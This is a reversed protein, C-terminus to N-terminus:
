LTMQLQINERSSPSVKKLLPPSLSSSTTAASRAKRIGLPSMPPSKVTNRSAQVAALTNLAKTAERALPGGARERDKLARLVNVQTAELTALTRAVQLRVYECSDLGLMELLIRIIKDSKMGLVGASVVAHARCDDDESELQKEVRDVIWDKMGLSTLTSAVESRVEKSPDDYLRRGLIEFVRDMEEENQFCEPGLCVLLKAAAARYRWVTSNQLQHVIIDVVDQETAHFQRVLIELSRATVHTDNSSLSGMLKQRAVEDPICLRGLCVACDYGLDDDAPSACLMKLTGILEQVIPLTKNVLHTNRANIMTTVVDSKAEHTGNKLYKVLVGVALASWYGLSIVSKASEYRVRSDSDYELRKTLASIIPKECCDLVGFNRATDIREEVKESELKSLMVMIRQWKPGKKDLRKVGSKCKAGILSALHVAGLNLKASGLPSHKRPPSEFTMPKSVQKVQSSARSKNHNKYMILNTEKAVNMQNVLRITPEMQEPPTDNWDSSIRPYKKETNTRTLPLVEPAPIPKPYYKLHVHPTTTRSEVPPLTEGRTSPRSKSNASKLPSKTTSSRSQDAKRPVLASSGVRSTSLVSTGNRSGTRSMLKSGRGSGEPTPNHEISKVAADEMKEWIEHIRDSIKELALKHIDLLDANQMQRWPLESATEPAPEIFSSTVALGLNHYSLPNQRTLADHHESFDFMHHPSQWYEEALDRDEEEEVVDGGDHEQEPDGQEAIDVKASSVRQTTVDGSGDTIFVSREDQNEPPMVHGRDFSATEMVTLTDGGGGTDKENGSKEREEVDRDRRDLSASPQKLISKEPKLPQVSAVPKTYSVPSDAEPSEYNKETQASHSEKQYKELLKNIRDELWIVRKRAAGVDGGSHSIDELKLKAYVLESNLKGVVKLILVLEESQTKLDEVEQSWFLIDQKSKAQMLHGMAQELQNQLQQVMEIQDDMLVESRHAVPRVKAVPKGSIVKRPKGAFTRQRKKTRCAEELTAM